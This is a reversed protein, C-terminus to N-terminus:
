TDMELQYLGVRDFGNSLVQPISSPIHLGNGFIANQGLAGYSNNAFGSLGHVFGSTSYYNPNGLTLIFKGSLTEAPTHSTFVNVKSVGAPLVDDGFTLIKQAHGNQIDVSTDL